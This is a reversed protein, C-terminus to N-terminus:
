RSTWGQDAMLCDAAMQGSLSATPVGSGPHVSGGALYLGPIKTRPSPRAFFSGWGHSAQGYLAGGTAPFLHNFDTPTCVQQAESQASLTLGCQALLTRMTEACQEIEAPTYTHTDGNAPANILFFLRERGEPDPSSDDRDQACIYTTPSPPMKGEGFIADFEARYADSFFVTHRHLPFDEVKALTSFTMASLSRKAPRAGAQKVAQGFLGTAPAAADSNLIVARAALTEGSAIAVHTVHGKQPTIGTVLTNFRVTGGLTRILHTLATALKHMGGKIYWVGEQEVHAVLSLNPPCHFPSSGYYTAYRGFLQQLRPDKFYKGLSEWMCKYPQTRLLAMAGAPGTTKMMSTLSTDQARMFPLGVNQYIDAVDALFARFRRAEAAGAFDGIADAAQNRDAHLDFRSGDSWGHRALITAKQLTILDELSKGTRALLEDFVWRMTFVTPGADIPQGEVMIERMKGGPKAEKELVIVDVGRALLSIAASLGAIGAGIIIVPEATM